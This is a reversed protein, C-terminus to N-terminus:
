SSRSVQHFPPDQGINTSSSSHYHSYQQPPHQQYGYHSPPSFVSGHSPYSTYQQNHSGSSHYQSGAEYGQPHQYSYSTSAGATAQSPNDARQAPEIRPSPIRPSSSASENKNSSMEGLLYGRNAKEMAERERDRKEMLLFSYSSLNLGSPPPLGQPPARHTPVFYQPPQPSEGPQPTSASVSLLPPVLPQQPMHEQQTYNSDPQDQYPQGHPQGHRYPEFSQDHPHGHDDNRQQQQEFPHEEVRYQWNPRDGTTNDDRSTQHASASDAEPDKQAPSLLLKLDM